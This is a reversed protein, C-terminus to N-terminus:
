SQQYLEAARRLLEVKKRYNSDLLRALEGNLPDALLAARAERIASDITALSREVVAVTKPSLKGREREFARQLSETSTLYVSEANAFSAPLVTSSNNTSPLVAIAPTAEPARARVVLSTIGSSMVVLGIAAAALWGRGWRPPAHASHVALPKAVVSPAAHQRAHISRQIDGWLPAPPDISDPVDSAAALLCRLEALVDRCTSCRDLHAAADRRVSSELRADAYDNITEWSLHNSEHYIM